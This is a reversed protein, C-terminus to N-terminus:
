LASATNKLRQPGIFFYGGQLRGGPLFTISGESGIFQLSLLKRGEGYVPVILSGDTHIKLGPVPGVGKAALYPHEQCPASTYYIFNAIDAAQSESFAKEAEEAQRIEEIRRPLTANKPMLDKTMLNVDVTEKSM